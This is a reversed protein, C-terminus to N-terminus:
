MTEDDPCRSSKFYVENQTTLLTNCVDNVFCLHTINKVSSVVLVTYIYACTLIDIKKITIVYLLIFNVYKISKINFSVTIM